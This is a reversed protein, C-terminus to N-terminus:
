FGGGYRALVDSLRELAFDALTEEQVSARAVGTHAQLQGTFIHIPLLKIRM